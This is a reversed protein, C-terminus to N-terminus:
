FGISANLWFRNSSSSGDQNQSPDDTFPNNGIRFAWTANVIINYPATWSVSLGAGQLTGNNPESAGPFDSFKNVQVNGVDYFAAFQLEPMLNYRLEM